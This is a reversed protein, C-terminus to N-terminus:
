GEQHDEPRDDDVPEQRMGAVVLCDALTHVELRELM